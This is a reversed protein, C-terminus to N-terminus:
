ANSQQISGQVKGEVDQGTPVEQELGDNSKSPQEDTNPNLAKFIERIWPDVKKDYSKKLDIFDFPDMAMIGNPKLDEIFKPCTMSLTVQIDVADLALNAQKTMSNLIRGYQGSTLLAKNSEMAVIQGMTPCNLTYTNGKVEWLITREM